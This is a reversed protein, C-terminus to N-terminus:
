ELIELNLSKLAGELTSFISCSYKKDAIESFMTAVATEFPKDVVIAEKIRDFKKLANKVSEFIQNMDDIEQSDTEFNANRCDIISVLNNPLSNHNSLTNYHKIVDQICLKGSVKVELLNYEKHFTYNIM